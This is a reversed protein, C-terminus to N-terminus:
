PLNVLILELRDSSLFSTLAWREHTIVNSIEMKARTLYFRICNLNRKLFMILNLWSCKISMRFGNIVEHYTM